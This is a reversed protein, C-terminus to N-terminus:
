KQMMKADNQMLTRVTRHTETRFHRWVHNRCHQLYWCNLLIRFKKAMIRIGESAGNEEVSQM